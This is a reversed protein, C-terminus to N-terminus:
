FGNKILTLKCHQTLKLHVAFHNMYIHICVCVCVCVCLSIPKGPLASPSFWRNYLLGTNSGQTTFIGTSSFSVWELLRAQLIGHVFSGLLSCDMPDCLTPCSQAVLM